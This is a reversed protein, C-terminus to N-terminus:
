APVKASLPFSWPGTEGRASKWRLMYWVTKGGDAGDFVAVYPTAAEAAAQATVNNTYGTDFGTLANAIPTIQAPVLGLLLANTQIYTVFNQGWALAEADSRPIYDDAM